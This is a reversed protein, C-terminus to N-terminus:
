ETKHWAKKSFNEIQETKWWIKDRQKLNWDLKDKWATIWDQAANEFFDKTQMESYRIKHLMESFSRTKMRSNWYLFMLKELTQINHTITFRAFRM